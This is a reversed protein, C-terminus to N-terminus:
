FGEEVQATVIIVTTTRQTSARDSGGLAYPADPTLRRRDYEDERRDFGSIIMAQGARLEVQQVMGNGDITIQQVELPNGPKGFTLSKLPQAVTNDYAISLLIQGDDQADPVLTLFSGVTEQKQNISVGPLLGPQLAPSSAIPASVSGQVQDVYSFTTRVAHTVPRRNLTLVPVSSHRVITGIESLAAIIAKSGGFLDNNVGASALGASTGALGASAMSVAARTGQYLLNWDIGARAQDKGVVTIEEFVLRVRRTLAKNERELFRAVQELADRTDNVVISNGAGPAATVTGARTLFPEIRARVAAIADHDGTSLTTNSTNQFGEGGKGTARGLRADARANLTLARVDFVRTETRYFEIAGDAYRWYVGLRWALADLVRPLPQAGDPLSARAPFPTGGGHSVALRPLFLEAPLLADPRVKVGIGTARAIRDALVALDAQGGSFMLTTDVNRRLAAPLTAERALPRARGALWPRGVDQAALRAAGDSVSRSFGAYAAENRAQSAAARDQIAAIREPAVCAPCALALTLVLGRRAACGAPPRFSVSM